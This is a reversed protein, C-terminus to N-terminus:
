KSPSLITVIAVTTDACLAIAFLYRRLSSPSVLCRPILSSWCPISSTVTIIETVQFTFSRRLRYIFLYSPVLCSEAHERSKQHHVRQGQRWDSHSFLPFLAVGSGVPIRSRQGANVVRGLVSPSRGRQLVFVLSSPCRRYSCGRTLNRAFINRLTSAAAAATTPSTSPRCPIPLYPAQHEFRRRVRSSRIKRHFSSLNLSASSHHCRIGVLYWKSRITM